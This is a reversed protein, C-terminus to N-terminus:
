GSFCWVVQFDSFTLAMPDILDPMLFRAIPNNIGFIINAFLLAIHGATKTQKM